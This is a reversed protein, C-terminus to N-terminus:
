LKRQKNEQIMIKEIIESVTEKVSYSLGNSMYITTCPLAQHGTTYFSQKPSMSFIKKYNFFFTREAESSPKGPTLTTLEIFM